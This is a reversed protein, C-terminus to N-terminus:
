ATSHFSRSAKEPIPLSGPTAPSRVGEAIQVDSRARRDRGVLQFVLLGAALIALVVTMAVIKRGTRRTMSKGPDIQSERVIGEPTIEFAWSCVLAAPFGIVVLAIILQLTWEPAHFTPLVISAVQIVLWAVVAYAVTVKYVNRRKLEVLVNRPNM